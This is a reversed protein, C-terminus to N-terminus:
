ILIIFLRWNWIFEFLILFFIICVYAPVFRYEPYESPLLRLDSITVYEENGYDM